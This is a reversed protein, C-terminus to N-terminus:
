STIGALEHSFTITRKCRVVTGQPVMVNGGITAQHIEAADGIVAHDCIVSGENIKAYSGVEAHDKVISSLDIKATKAVTATVAVLGGGNPHHRYQVGNIEVCPGDFLVKAFM